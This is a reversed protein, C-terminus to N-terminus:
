TDPEHKARWNTPTLACCPPLAYKVTKKRQTLVREPPDFKISLWHTSSGLSQASGCRYENWIKGDSIYYGALVPFDSQQPERDTRKIWQTNM